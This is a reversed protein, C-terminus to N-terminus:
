YYFVYDEECTNFIEGNIQEISAEWDFIPYQVRYSEWSCKELKNTFAGVLGWNCENMEM